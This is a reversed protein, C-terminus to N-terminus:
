KEVRDGLTFLGANNEQTLLGDITIVVLGAL